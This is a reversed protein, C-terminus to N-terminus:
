ARGCHWHQPPWLFCTCFFEHLKSMHNKLYTIPRLSMCVYLCTVRLVKYNICKQSSTIFSSPMVFLLHYRQTIVKLGM